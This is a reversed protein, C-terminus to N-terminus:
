LRMSHNPFSLYTHTCVSVMIFYSAKQFHWLFPGFLSILPLTAQPKPICSGGARGPDLGVATPSRPPVAHNPTAMRGAWFPLLSSWELEGQPGPM